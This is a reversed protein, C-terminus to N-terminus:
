KQVEIIQINKLKHFEIFEEITKSFKTYIQVVKDSNERLFALFEDIHQITPIDVSLSIADDRHFDTYHINAIERLTEVYPLFDGGSPHHRM